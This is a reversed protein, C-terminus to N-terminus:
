RDNEYWDLLTVVKGHDELPKYHDEFKFKTLDNNSYCRRPKERGHSPGEHVLWAASQGKPVYVTHIDAHDMHDPVGHLLVRLQVGALVMSGGAKEFSGTPNAIGSVYDWANFKFIGDGDRLTVVVNTVSGFILELRLDCHHPHLALSLDKGFLTWNHYLEHDPNAWFVRVLEGTDADEALVISDVGRVHCHSLSRQLSEEASLIRFM